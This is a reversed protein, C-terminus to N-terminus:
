LKVAYIADDLPNQAWAPGAIAMCVLLQVIPITKM